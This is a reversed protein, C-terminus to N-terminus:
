PIYLFVPHYVFVCHKTSVGGFLFRSRRSLPRPFPDIKVALGGFLGFACQTKRKLPTGLGPCFFQQNDMSHTPMGVRLLARNQFEQNFLEQIVPKAVSNSGVAGGRRRFASRTARDNPQLSHPKPTPVSHACDQKNEDTM